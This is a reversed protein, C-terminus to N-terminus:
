EQEKLGKLLPEAKYNTEYLVRRGGLTYRWKQEGLIFNLLCGKERKGYKFGFVTKTFTEDVALFLVEM